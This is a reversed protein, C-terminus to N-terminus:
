HVHCFHSVPSLLSSLAAVYRTCFISAGSAPYASETAIDITDLAPLSTALRPTHNVINSLSTL